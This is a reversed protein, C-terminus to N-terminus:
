DYVHLEEKFVAYLHADTPLGSSPLTEDIYEQEEDTIDIDNYIKSAVRRMKRVFCEALRQSKYPISAQRNGCQGDGNNYQYYDIVVEYSSYIM